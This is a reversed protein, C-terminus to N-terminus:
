WRVQFRAGVQGNSGVMPSITLSENHREVISPIAAIDAIWSAVTVGAPILLLADASNESGGGMESIAIALAIGGTVGLTFLRTGVGELGRDTDCAYALGPFPGFVWPYLLFYKNSDNWNSLVVAIPIVTNAVALGIAPASSKPGEETPSDQPHLDQPSIFLLIALVFWSPRCM